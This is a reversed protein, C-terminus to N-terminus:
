LLSMVFLDSHMLLGQWTYCIFVERSYWETKALRIAWHEAEVALSLMEKLSHIGNRIWVAQKRHITLVLWFCFDTEKSWSSYMESQWTETSNMPPLFEFSKNRKSVNLCVLTKQTWANLLLTKLSCSLIIIVVKIAQNYLFAKFLSLVTASVILQRAFNREKM